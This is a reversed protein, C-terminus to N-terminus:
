ISCVNRALDCIVCLCQALFCSEEEGETLCQVVRLTCFDSQWVRPSAAASNLSILTGCFNLFCLASFLHCTWLALQQPSTLVSLFYFCTVLNPLQSTEPLKPFLLKLLVPSILIFSYFM